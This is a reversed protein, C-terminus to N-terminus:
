IQKTMSRPPASMSRSLGFDALKIVIKDSNEAQGVLLNAPKVDRHIFQKSHVTQLATLIQEAIDLVSDIPL